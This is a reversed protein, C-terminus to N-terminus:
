ILNAPSPMFLVISLARLIIYKDVDTCLIKICLGRSLLRLSLPWYGIRFTEAPVTRYPVNEKTRLFYKKM